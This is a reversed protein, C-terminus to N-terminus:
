AQTPSKAHRFRVIASLLLAIIVLLYFLTFSFSFLLLDIRWSVAQITTLGMINPVRYSASITDTLAGWNGSVLLHAFTRGPVVLYAISGLFLLVTATRTHKFRVLAFSFLCLSGSFFYGYRYYDNDPSPALWLGWLICAIAVTLVSNWLVKTM